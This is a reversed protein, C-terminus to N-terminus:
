WTWWGRRGWSGRKQRAEYLPATAAFTRWDAASMDLAEGERERFELLDAM